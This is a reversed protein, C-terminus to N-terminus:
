EPIDRAKDEQRSARLWSLFDDVSEDEPWFDGQLEKISRIPKVGQQKALEWVRAHARRRAEECTLEDEREIRELLASYMEPSPTEQALSELLASYMEPLPTEQLPQLRFSEM